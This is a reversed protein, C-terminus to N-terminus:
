FIQKRGKVKEAGRPKSKTAPQQIKISIPNKDRMIILTLNLQEGSLLARLEDATLSAREQTGVIVDGVRIGARDAPSDKSVSRVLLGGKVKFYDALQPTLELATFGLGFGSGTPDASVNSPFYTLQETRRAPELQKPPEIGLAMMRDYVQRIEQEIERRAEIADKSSPLKQLNWHERKLEELRRLIDERQSTLPELHSEFIDISYGWANDPRAGLQATFEMPQHNRLARLTIKRGEPSSQLLATLDATGAINFTDAGIIVDNPLIGCTAAPSGQTIQRVIVGSKNDLGLTSAENDTLQSVNEGTAGLWGAPVNGNKEIVRKAVTDRIFEVPYLYARGFGAYQAIGIVQNMPTTVVSSDNRSLLNNSFLTIAGRVKSYISGQGINGKAFRKLPTFYVRTGKPTAIAKGQVDSSIIVVPAGNPLSSAAIKDPPTVKLSAVELVAFGTACDVGILRAPLSAGDSTTVSIIQDKDQIDLNALRTVVHGQEDIVLGTAVNYIFQPASAPVGYRGKEQQKMRAVMKEFDITHVVSLAWPTNIAGPAPQPQQQARAAAALGAILLFITAARKSMLLFVQM